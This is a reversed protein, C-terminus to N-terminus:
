VIEATGPHPASLRAIRRSAKYGTLPACTAPGGSAMAETLAWPVPLLVHSGSVLVVPAWHVPVTAPAQPRHKGDGVEM